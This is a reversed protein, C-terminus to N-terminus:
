ATRRNRLGQKLFASFVALSWYERWDVAPADSWVEAIQHRRVLEVLRLALRREEGSSWQEMDAVPIPSPSLVVSPYGRRRLYVVLHRTSEDALSSIVITTIGPPFFRRAAIGARESPGAVPAVEAALLAERIRYRQRRGGGLRVPTLFEGFIALGVRAREHLFADAIGLTAARAVGLLRSDMWPGLETPRADLFILVDGTRELSFENAYLTGSRATASWNIRRPSDMPLAVRVGYFDGSEGIARSRTEGPLVITRHLRVTGLRGAELPCREVALSQGEVPLARDMLGLGDRWRVTPLAIQALVPERAHLRASLLIRGEEFRMRFPEREILGPPVTTQVDLDRVDIGPPPTLEVSVVVEQGEGTEQWKVEVAEQGPPSLLIAALPAILLPVAAFLAVPTHVAVGLALLLGALGYCFWTRLSPRVVSPAEGTM